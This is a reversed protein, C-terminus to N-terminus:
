YSADLNFADQIWNIDNQHISIVDFRCAKNALEPHKQLYLQATSIIKKQKARTVMEAPTGYGIQKRYKVEVFLISDHHMAIIDIEGAKCKFNSEVIRVNHKKLYNRAQEEGHDGISKTTKRFLKL